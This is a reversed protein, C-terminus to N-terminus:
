KSYGARKASDCAISSRKGKKCYIIVEHEKPPKEYGFRERFSDADLNFAGSLIATLPLNVASTVRGELLEAPERVDIITTGQPECAGRM